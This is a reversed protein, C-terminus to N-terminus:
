VRAGGFPIPTIIGNMTTMRRVGRHWCSVAAPMWAGTMRSTRPEQRCPEATFPPEANEANITNVTIGETLEGTADYNADVKSEQLADLGEKAKPYISRITAGLNDFTNGESDM